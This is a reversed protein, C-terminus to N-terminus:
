ALSDDSKSCAVPDKAALESTLVKLMDDDDSAAALVLLPDFDLLPPESSEDSFPALSTTPDVFPALYKSTNENNVTAEIATESYIFSASNYLFKKEFHLM